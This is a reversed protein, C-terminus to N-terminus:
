KKVDLESALQKVEEFAIENAQRNSIQRGKQLFKNYVDADKDPVFGALSVYGVELSNYSKDTLLYEVLKAEAEVSPAIVEKMRKPIPIKRNRLTNRFAENGLCLLLIKIADRITNKPLPLASQPHAFGSAEELVRGYKSVAAVSEWFVEEFDERSAKLATNEVGTGSILRGYVM